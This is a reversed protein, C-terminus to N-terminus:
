IYDIHTSGAWLECRLYGIVFKWYVRNLSSYNNVWSVFSLIFFWRNVFRRCSFIRFSIGFDAETEIKLFKTQLKRFSIVGDTTARREEKTKFKLGSFYWSYNKLCLIFVICLNVTNPIAFSVLPRQKGNMSSLTPLIIVTVMNLDKEKQCM